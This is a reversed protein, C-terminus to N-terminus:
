PKRNFVRSGLMGLCMLTGYILAVGLFGLAWFMMPAEIAYSKLHGSQHTVAAIFNYVRDAVAACLSIVVMESISASYAGVALCSLWIPCSMGLWWIIPVQRVTHLRPAIFIRYLVQDALIVALLVILTAIIIHKLSIRHILVM